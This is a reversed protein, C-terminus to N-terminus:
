GLIIYCLGGSTFGAYMGVYEGHSGHTIISINSFTATFKFHAGDVVKHYRIIYSTAAWQHNKFTCGLPVGVVSGILPLNSFTCQLPYM